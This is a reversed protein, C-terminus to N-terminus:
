VAAAGERRLLKVYNIFLWISLIKLRKITLTKIEKIEGEFFSKGRKVCKM